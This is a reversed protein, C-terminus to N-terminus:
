NCTVETLFQQLQECTTISELAAWECTDVSPCIWDDLPMWGCVFWAPIDGDPADLWPCDGLAELRQCHQHVWIVFFTDRAPCEDVPDVPCVPLDALSPTALLAFVAVVLSRNMM